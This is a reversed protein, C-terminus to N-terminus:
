RDYTDEARTSSFSAEKGVVDEGFFEYRVTAPTSRTSTV